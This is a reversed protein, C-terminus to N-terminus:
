KSLGPPNRSSKRLSELTVGAERRSVTSMTSNKRAAAIRMTMSARLCPTLNTQAYM